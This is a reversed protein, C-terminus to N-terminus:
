VNRRQILGIVAGYFWPVIRITYLLYLSMVFIEKKIKFALYVGWTFCIVLMTFFLLAIFIFPTFFISVLISLAFLSFFIPQTTMWIPNINDGQIAEKNKLYFQIANKGTESQQKIYGRLTGRHHHYVIATPEFFLKYGMYNLRYGFDTDYGVKLNTNFRLKELVNKKVLLNMNPHRLVLGRPTSLFRVDLDLGIIKQLLNMNKPTLGPGGVADVSEKDLTNVLTWLWNKTAVCDGDILAILNTSIYGSDIAYNLAEPQTSQYEIIKIKIFREAYEKLIDITGDTSFSDIILIYFDSPYSQLLLSDLWPRVTGEINKVTSLITVEDM